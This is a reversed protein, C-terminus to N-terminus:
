QTVGGKSFFTINFSAELPFGEHNKIGQEAKTNYTIVFNDVKLIAMLNQLKHMFVMISRYEGRIRISYTINGQQQNNPNMNQIQQESQTTNQSDEKKDSTNDSKNDKKNEEKNEGSNNTSEKNEGSNNTSEKNEGESYTVSSKITHLDINTDEAIQEITYLIVSEDIQDPSLEQLKQMREAYIQAYENSNEVKSLLRLAETYYNDMKKIQNEKHAIEKNTPLYFLVFFSSIILLSIIAFILNVDKKSLNM